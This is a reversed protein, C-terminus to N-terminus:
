HKKPPPLKNKMSLKVIDGGFINGSFMPNLRWSYKQYGHKECRLQKTDEGEM